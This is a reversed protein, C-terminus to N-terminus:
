EFDVIEQAAILQDLADIRKNIKNFFTNRAPEGANNLLV